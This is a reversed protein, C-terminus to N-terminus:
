EVNVCADKASQVAQVLGIRSTDSLGGGVRMQDSYQALSTASANLISHVSLDDASAARDVLEASAAFIVDAQGAATTQAKLGEFITDLESGISACARIDGETSWRL